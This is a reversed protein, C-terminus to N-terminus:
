LTSTLVRASHHWSFLRERLTLLIFSSITSKLFYCLSCEEMWMLLAATSLTFLKLNRLTCMVLLRFHDMWVHLRTVYACCCRKLRLLSFSNPKAGLVRM